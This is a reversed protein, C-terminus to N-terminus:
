CLCIWITWSDLGQACDMRGFKSSEFGVDAFVMAVFVLPARGGIVAGAGLYSGVEEGERGVGGRGGEEAGGGGVGGFGRLGCGDGM